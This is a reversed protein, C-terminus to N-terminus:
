FQRRKPIGERRTGSIGQSSPILTDAGQNSFCNELTESNKSALSYIETQTRPADERSTQRREPAYRM